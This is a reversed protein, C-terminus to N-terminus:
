RVAITVENSARGLYTLRVPVTAGPAVGNPMRVNVQDFGPYGPAKGFFLIEALRDGIAVQPPIVGGDPLSITYMALAEGAVAPNGPSAVQGTEAHWIAGQSGGGELISFLLPARVLATPHYLEASALSGVLGTGVGGSLLVTGDCLLTARHNLRGASATLDGTPSFTGAVADYLEAGPQGAFWKGTILVTGDPLLTATSDNSRPTTLSGTTTFTGTTPNYLEAEQGTDLSYQLTELVKGNTLLVAMSSFEPYMSSAARGGTLSFTGTDPDYLEENSVVGNRVDGEGDILVKGSTLLTATAHGHMEIMNGTATFTGSTPDYLEANARVVYQPDAGDSGGAILVKGTNLLSGAHWARTVTMEGTAIFTGTSPDYLEASALSDYKLASGGAILVKGNPLLTATHGSRATTMNGTPTFTGTVPDYLEANALILTSWTGNFILLYGGAILVKGDHLLTATHGSRGTSMNGTSTFFGQTQALLLNGATIAMLVLKIIQM